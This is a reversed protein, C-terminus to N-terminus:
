FTLVGELDFCAIMLIGRYYHENRTAVSHLALSELYAQSVRHVM